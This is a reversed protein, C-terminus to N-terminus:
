ARFLVFIGSMILLIGAGHQWTLPAGWLFHALLALIGYSLSVSPYAIQVPIRRIALIYAVAALAYIGFGFITWISTFQQWTTEANDTGHKLIVQGGVGLCIGLALWLYPVM